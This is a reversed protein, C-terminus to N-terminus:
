MVNVVGEGLYLGKAREQYVVAGPLTRCSLPHLADAFNGRTRKDGVGLLQCAGARDHGGRVASARSM